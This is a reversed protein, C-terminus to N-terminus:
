VSSMQRCPAFYPEQARGFIFCLPARRFDDASFIETCTSFVNSSRESIKAFRFPSVRIQQNIPRQLRHQRRVPPRHLARTTVKILLRERFEQWRV